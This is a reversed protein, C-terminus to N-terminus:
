GDTEPPSSPQRAIRWQREVGDWAEDSSVLELYNIRSSSVDIVFDLGHRLGEMQITAGRAGYTGDVLPQHHLDELHVFRGVGTSERRSARIGDVRFGHWNDGAVLEICTRELPTLPSTPGGVGKAPLRPDVALPQRV